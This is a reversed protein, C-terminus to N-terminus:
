PLLTRPEDREGEGSRFFTALSRRWLPVLPLLITGRLSSHSLTRPFFRPFFVMKQDVTEEPAIVVHPEGNEEVRNWFTGCQEM